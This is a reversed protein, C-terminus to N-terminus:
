LLEPRASFLRRALLGHTVANFRSIAKGRETRPGTSKQANARNAALKRASIGANKGSNNPNEGGDTPKEPSPPAPTQPPEATDPPTTPQQTANPVADQESGDDPDGTYSHDFM